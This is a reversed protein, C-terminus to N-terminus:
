LYLLVRLGLIINGFKSTAMANHSFFFRPRRVVISSACIRFLVGGYRYGNGYYEGFGNFLCSGYGCGYCYGDVIVMAMVMRLVISNFFAM